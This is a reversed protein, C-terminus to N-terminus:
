RWGEIEVCLMPGVGVWGRMKSCWANWGGAGDLQNPRGCGRYARPAYGEGPILITGALAKLGRFGEVDLFQSTQQNYETPPLGCSLIGRKARYAGPTVNPRTQLHVVFGRPHQTVFAPPGM